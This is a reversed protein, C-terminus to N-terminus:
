AQDIRLPRGDQDWAGLGSMSARLRSVQVLQFTLWSLCPFVSGLAVPPAAQAAQAVLALSLLAALVTGRRLRARPTRFPRPWDVAGSVTHIRPGVAPEAVPTSRRVAARAKRMLNPSGCSPCVKLRNLHRWWCYVLGPVVGCCWGLLELLDSGELVTDPVAVHLCDTCLM